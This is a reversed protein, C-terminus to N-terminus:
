IMLIFSAMNEPKSSSNYIFFIYFYYHGRFANLTISLILMKSGFKVYNMKTNFDYKQLM